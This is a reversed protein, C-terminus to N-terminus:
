YSDEHGMEKKYFDEVEKKCKLSCVPELDWTSAWLGWAFEPVNMDKKCGNCKPIMRPDYHECNETNIGEIGDEICEVEEDTFDYDCEAHGQIGVSVDEFWSAHNCTDCDPKGIM